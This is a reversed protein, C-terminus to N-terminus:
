LLLIYLYRTTTTMEDISLGTISDVLIHNKYGWFFVYNKDSVPRNETKFKDTNYSKYSDQSTTNASNSTSNLTIISTNLIGLEYPKQFQSHM